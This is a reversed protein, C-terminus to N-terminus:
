KSRLQKVVRGFHTASNCLHTEAACVERDIVINEGGFRFLRYASPCNISWKPNIYIAIKNIRLNAINNLDNLAERYADVSKQLGVEGWFIGYYELSKAIIAKKENPHNIYFYPIIIESV